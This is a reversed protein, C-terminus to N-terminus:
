PPEVGYFKAVNDVMLREVDDEGLVGREIAGLLRESIEWPYASVGPRANDDIFDSEVLVLGGLGRLAELKQKIPFSVPVGLAACAEATAESAHHVLLKERRAGVLKSLRDVFSCTAWGGQELHLHVPLSLDRAIELAKVMVLESVVVRPPSTGYHQRGVEGIGSLVGRKALDAELELVKEALEYVERLSKGRRSYEDVEAPHFGALLSVKIGESTFARAQELLLEIAKAYVEVGFGEIGYHYPPLLVLAAFWFGRKKMERAVKAAGMGRVPNVHMHADSFRLPRGM